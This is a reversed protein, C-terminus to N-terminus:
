RRRASAVCVGSQCGGLTAQGRNRGRQVHTRALACHWARAHLGSQGPPCRGAACGAARKWFATPVSASTSTKVRRGESKALVYLEGEEAFLKVEVAERVKQCPLDLWKWRIAGKTRLDQSLKKFQSMVYGNYTQYILQSLFISRMSLLEEALPTALEVSPTYLCELINPNAKLALLLFKEIEWYCEQTEQNEIQEPLGFLSWQLDAPPLFIGRRDFDSNDEALGFARSGVVCRYIIFENLEPQKDQGRRHHASNLQFHKRIALSGRPFNVISGDTL